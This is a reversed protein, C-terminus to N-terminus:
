DFNQIDDTDYVFDLQVYAYENIRLRDTRASLQVTALIFFHRVFRNLNAFRHSIIRSLNFLNRGVHSWTYVSLGTYLSWGRFGLNTATTSLHDNNLPLEIDCFTFIPGLFPPRQLCTTTLEPKVTIGIM